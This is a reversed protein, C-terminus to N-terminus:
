WFKSKKTQFIAMQCGQVVGAGGTTVFVYRPALTEVASKVFEIQQAV